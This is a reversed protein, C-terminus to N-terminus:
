QAAEEVVEADIRLPDTVLPMIKSAFDRADEIANFEAFMADTGPVEAEPWQVVISAMAWRHNINRFIADLYTVAVHEYHTACTTDDSGIYWYINVARSRKRRGDQEDIFERFLRLTTAKLVKGGSLPVSVPASEVITWGQGPLCVEPRHLSRKLHGSLVVSFIVQQNRANLYIARSL